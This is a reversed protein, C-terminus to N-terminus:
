RHLTRAGPGCDLFDLFSVGLAGKLGRGRGRNLECNDRAGVTFRRHVCVRETNGQGKRTLM